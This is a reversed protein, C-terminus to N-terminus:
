GEVGKLTRLPLRRSIKSAVNPNLLTRGVRVANTGFRQRVADLAATLKRATQGSKENGL